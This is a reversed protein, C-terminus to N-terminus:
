PTEPTSETQQPMAQQEEDTNLIPRGLESRTTILGKPVVLGSAPYESSFIEPNYTMDITYTAGLKDRAFSSLTVNSFMEKGEGEEAPLKFRAFKLTDVFRNVLELTTAGGQISITETGATTDLTVKTPTVGESPTLKTLYDFLRSTRPKDSHLQDLSNLQNQVTLVKNIDDVQSRKNSISASSSKINNNLLAVQAGQIGFVYIAALGVIALSGGGVLTAILIILRKQRRAKVYQM